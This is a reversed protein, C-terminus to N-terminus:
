ISKLRELLAPKNKKSVEVLYGNSMKVFLGDTNVFQVVENLNIIHSLHSRFFCEPDLIAEYEKINKSSLYRVNNILYIETYSGSGKLRLIDRPKIYIIGGKVSLEIVSFRGNKKVPSTTGTIKAICSVLEDENIPKLLYDAANHKIAKLAYQEHATTFVLKFDKFELNQLLSFGDMKPMSVDLFVIDPKYDNIYDIGQESRTTSAIVKVDKVNKEILAKLTNLSMEEDDIIIARHM